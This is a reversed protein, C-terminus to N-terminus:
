LQDLLNQLDHKLREIKESNYDQDQANKARDIIADVLQQKQENFINRKEINMNRIGEVGSLFPANVVDKQINKKVQDESINEPLIIVICNDIHYPKDPSIQINMTELYKILLKYSTWPEKFDPDSPLFLLYETGHQQEFSEKM